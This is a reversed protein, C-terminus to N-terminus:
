RAQRLRFGACTGGCELRRFLKPRVVEGNILWGRYHVAVTDTAFPTEGLEADAETLDKVYVYDSNTLTLDTGM